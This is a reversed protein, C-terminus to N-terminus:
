GRRASQPKRGGVGGEGEKRCGATMVFVDTSELRLGPTKRPPLSFKLTHILVFAQICMSESAIQTLSALTFTSLSSSLFPSSIAEPPM